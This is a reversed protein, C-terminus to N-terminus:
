AREEPPIWRLKLVKFIEEESRGAIIKGNCLIGKATWRMGMRLARKAIRENFQWPGTRQLLISGWNSESAIYLDVRIGDVVLQCYK